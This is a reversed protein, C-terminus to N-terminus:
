HGRTGNGGAKRGELRVSRKEAGTTDRITIELDGDRKALTAYTPDGGRPDAHSGPNLLVPGDATHLHPRHTHGSIVLDAGREAGFYTLGTQGGRQTHTVAVTFTGITLTRATPLRDQVGPEDRNGAVAVLSSAVSQFGDLVAETTFDGAHIVRDASRVAERLSGTLGPRESRHTDSVVVIM